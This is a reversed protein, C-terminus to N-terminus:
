PDAGKGPRRLRRWASGRANADWRKTGVVQGRGWLPPGWLLM